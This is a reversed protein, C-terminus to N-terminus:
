TPDRVTGDAVEVHAGSPQRIVLVGSEGITVAKGRVIGKGTDVVVDRGLTACRDRYAQVIEAPDKLGEVYGRFVRLLRSLLEENDVAGGLEERLTTAPTDIGGPLRDRSVDSNIGIGVIAWYAEPGVLGEVLIGAVKAGGVQVDNPWKLSTVLGLSALAEGVALSAAMSIVPLWELEKRLLISVYLGGRPSIWSRGFRGKGRLQKQAIVVTWPEAGEAILAKAEDNTSEVADLRVLRTAM